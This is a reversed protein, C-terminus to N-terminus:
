LFYPIAIKAMIIECFFPERLAKETASAFNMRNGTCVPYRVPRSPSRAHPPKRRSSEPVLFFDISSRLLHYATNYRPADVGRCADFLSPSRAYEDCTGKVRFKIRADTAYCMRNKILAGTGSLKGSRSSFYTKARM